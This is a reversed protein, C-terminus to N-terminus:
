ARIPNVNHDAVRVRLGQLPLWVCMQEGKPTLPKQLHNIM